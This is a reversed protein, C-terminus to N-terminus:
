PAWRTGGAIPHGSAYRGDASLTDKFNAILNVVGVVSKVASEGFRDSAQASLTSVFPPGVADADFTPQELPPRAKMLLPVPAQRIEINRVVHEHTSRSASTTPTEIPRSVPLIASAIAATLVSALAVLGQQKKM